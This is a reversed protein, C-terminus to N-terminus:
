PFVPNLIFGRSNKNINTSNGVVTGNENIGVAKGLPYSAIFSYDYFDNHVGLDYMVGDRWLFPHFVKFSGTADTLAAGTDSYGVVDGQDNIAIAFSEDGGLTGLNTMQPYGNANLQWLFARELGDANKANGVVQGLNNIDKPDCSDGGLSDIRVMTGAEWFFGLTGSIGVIQASNNIDVASASEDALITNLTQGFGTDLNVYIATSGSNVVAENNENLAVAESHAGYVSGVSELLPADSGDPAAGSNVSVGDWYYANKEGSDGDEVTLLVYGNDNIDVAESYKKVVNQGTDTNVTIPALDIFVNGNSLFGRLDTYEEGGDKNGTTSNGIAWGSNNIDVAHSWIFPKSGPVVGYYDDYYFEKVPDAIDTPDYSIHLGLSTMINSLPDWVFAEPASLSNGVVVGSDNIAKAETILWNLGTPGNLDGLDTLAGLLGGNEEQGAGVVSPNDNNQSFLDTATAEASENSSGGCGAFSLCALVLISCHIGKKLVQFRITNKKSPQM